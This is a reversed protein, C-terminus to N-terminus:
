RTSPPLRSSDNLADLLEAPTAKANADLSAALEATAATTAAAAQEAVTRKALALAFVGAIVVALAGLGFGACFVYFATSM